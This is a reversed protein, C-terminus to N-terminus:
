CANKFFEIPWDFYFITANLLSLFCLVYNNGKFNQMLEATKCPHINYFAIGLFPHEGQSIFELFENENTERRFTFNLIIFILGFFRCLIRRYCISSCRKYKKGSIDCVFDNMEM